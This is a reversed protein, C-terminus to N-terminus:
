VCSNRIDLAQIGSENYLFQIINACIRAYCLHGFLRCLREFADFNLRRVKKDTMWYGVRRPKKTTPLSTEDMKVVLFISGTFLHRRIMWVREDLFLM